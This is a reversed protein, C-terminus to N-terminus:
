VTYSMVEDVLESVTEADSTTIFIFQGDGDRVHIEIDDADMFFEGVDGWVRYLRVKSDLYTVELFMMDEDEPTVGIDADHGEHWLNKIITQVDLTTTM